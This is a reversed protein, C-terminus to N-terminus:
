KKYFFNGIAIIMGILAIFLGALSIITVRTVSEQSAKGEAQANAERLVAIASDYKAQLAKLEGDYKSILAEHEARTIFKAAQDELTKRFENMGEFRKEMVQRILETFEKLTTFKNDVYKELVNLKDVLFTELATNKDYHYKELVIIRESLFAQVISFKDIIFDKLSMSSNDSKVLDIIHKDKKGVITIDEAL